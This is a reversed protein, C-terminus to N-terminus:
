RGAIGRSSRVRSRLVLYIFSLVCGAFVPVRPARFVLVLMLAVVVTAALTVRQRKLAGLISQNVTKM